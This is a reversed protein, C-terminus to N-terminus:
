RTRDKTACPARMAIAPASAHQRAPGHIRLTVVIFGARPRNEFRRGFGRGQGGPSAPAPVAPVNPSGPSM